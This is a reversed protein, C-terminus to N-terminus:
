QGSMQRNQSLFQESNRSLARTIADDAAALFTAGEDRLAATEGNGDDVPQALQPVADEHEHRDRVRM